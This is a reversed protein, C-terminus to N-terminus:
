WRDGAAGRDGPLRTAVGGDLPDNAAPLPRLLRNHLKTYFIVIRQGEDTHIYTNTHPLRTILGKILRIDRESCM